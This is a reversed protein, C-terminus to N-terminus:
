FIYGYRITSAAPISGADRSAEIYAEVYITWKKIEGNFGWYVPNKFALAALFNM